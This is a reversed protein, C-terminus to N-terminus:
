DTFRYGIGRVTEVYAGASKLKKRLGVVQVDVSRDTVPYDTGKVSDIIQSRTFVWGPHQTLFQLIMHRQRSLIDQTIMGSTLILLLIMHCQYILILQLNVMSLIGIM